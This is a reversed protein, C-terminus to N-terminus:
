VTLAGNQDLGCTDFETVYVINETIQTFMLVTCVTIITEAGGVYTENHTLKESRADVTRVDDKVRRDKKERGKLWFGNRIRTTRSIELPRNINVNSDVWNLISPKIMTSSADKRPPIRQVSM